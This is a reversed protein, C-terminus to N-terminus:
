QVGGGGCPLRTQGYLRRETPGENRVINGFTSKADTAPLESVFLHLFNAAAHRQLGRRSKQTKTWTYWPPLPNM